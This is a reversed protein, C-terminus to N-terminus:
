WRCSAAALGCDTVLQQKHLLEMIRESPGLEKERVMLLIMPVAKTEATDLVRDTLAM